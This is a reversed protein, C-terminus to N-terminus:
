GPPLLDHDELLQRLQDWVVEPAPSEANGRAWSEAASRLHGIAKARVDEASTGKKSNSNPFSAVGDLAENCLRDAESNEHRPVHRIVVQKFGPTLEKVQDYLRRLEPNKVRYAGSMQKVLLESDSHVLLREGGLEAARELARLLATYEAQNNTAKGLLGKEELVPSGERHIIFAYAAPGPNGRAAGDIHIKWAAPLSM